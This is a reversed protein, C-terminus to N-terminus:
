GTTLPLRRPSQSQSRTPRYFYSCRHTAISYTTSYYYYSIAQRTTSFWSWCRTLSNRWFTLALIDVGHRLSNVKLRERYCALFCSAFVFLGRQPVQAFFLPLWGWPSCSMKLLGPNVIAMPPNIGRPLGCTPPGPWTEIWILGDGRERRRGNQAYKKLWALSLPFPPTFCAYSCNDVLLVPLPHKQYRIYTCTSTCYMYGSQM